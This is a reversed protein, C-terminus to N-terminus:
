RIALDPSRSPSSNASASKLAQHRNVRGDANPSILGLLLSATIGVAFAVVLWASLASSWWAVRGGNPVSSLAVSILAVISLLRLSGRGVFPEDDHERVYEVRRAATVSVHKVVGLREWMPEVLCFEALSNALAKDVDAFEVGVRWSDADIRTVSRVNATVQMTTVGSSTAIASVLVASEGVSRATQSLLGAGHPTLDVINAAREGFTAPLLSVVRAARRSQVRRALLRLEDLSMALTWLAVVVMVLLAEESVYGLAHTFRDSIGRLLLVLCLTAVAVILGFGFHSGKAHGATVTGSRWSSCAPGMSLLSWRTRDGPRLSWGSLLSVGVSTFVFGPLAAVIVQGVPAAFPVSSSYMATALVSIFLARRLGSLPRVCWAAIAALQGATCTRRCGLLLLRASRARARRDAYVVPESNEARHAIVAVDSPAAIRWGAALMAGSALWHGELSSEVDATPLTERLADASVLSGSGTWIAHGRGGLAPNLAGREFALDHRGHPGHELSDDAFSVGLGQAIAVTEDIFAVSLFEVIDRTPIDGADLLLFHRTRSISLAVRMGSLDAPDSAAYVAEFEIAVSAITPRASTDVVIVDGVHEVTRLALLTARLESEQHHEVRVVVDVSVAVAAVAPDLPSKSRFTERGQPWLAWVLLAGGFWGCIEVFLVPISLWLDTGM